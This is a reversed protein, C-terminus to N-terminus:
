FYKKYVFANIHRIKSEVRREFVDSAYNSKRKVPRYM